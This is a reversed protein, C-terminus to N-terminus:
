MMKSAETRAQVEADASTATATMAHYHTDALYVASLYIEPTGNGRMRIRQEQKEVADGVGQASM